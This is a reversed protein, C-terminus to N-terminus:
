NDNEFDIENNMKLCNIDRKIMDIQIYLKVTFSVLLHKIKNTVIKSVYNVIEIFFM